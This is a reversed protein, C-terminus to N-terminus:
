TPWDVKNGVMIVSDTLDFKFRSDVQQFTLGEKNFVMARIMAIITWFDFKIYDTRPVQEFSESVGKERDRDRAM